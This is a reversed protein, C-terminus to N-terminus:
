EAKYATFSTDIFDDSAFGKVIVDFRPWIRGYSM